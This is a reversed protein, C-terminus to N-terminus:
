TIGGSITIQSGYGIIERHVKRSDITMEEKRHSTLGKAKANRNLPVGLNDM